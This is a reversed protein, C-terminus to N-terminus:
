PHLSASVTLMLKVRKLWELRQVRGSALLMIGIQGFFKPNHCHTSTYLSCDEFGPERLAATPASTTRTLFWSRSVTSRSHQFESCSSGYMHSAAKAELHFTYILLLRLSCIILLEPNPDSPRLRHQSTDTVLSGSLETPAPSCCRECIM